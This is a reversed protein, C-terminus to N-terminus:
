KTIIGFFALPSRFPSFCTTIAFPHHTAWSMFAKYFTEVSTPSLGIFFYVSFLASCLLSFATSQTVPTSLCTHFWRMQHFKLLLYGFLPSSLCVFFNVSSVSNIFYVLALSGQALCPFISWLFRIPAGLVIAVM